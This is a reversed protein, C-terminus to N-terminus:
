LMRIGSKDQSVSKAEQKENQSIESKKGLLANKNREQGVLKTEKKITEVKKEFQVM